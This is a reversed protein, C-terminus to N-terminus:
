SLRILISAVRIQCGKKQNSTKKKKRRKKKCTKNGKVLKGNAYFFIYEGVFLCPASLSLYFFLKLQAAVLKHHTAFVEASWFVRCNELM